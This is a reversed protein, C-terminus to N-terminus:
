SLEEMDSTELSKLLFPHSLIEEASPRKDPNLRCLSELLSLAEPDEITRTITQWYKNSQKLRHQHQRFVETLRGDEWDDFQENGFVRVVMDILQEKSKAAFFLVHGTLLEYLVCGLSWIDAKENYGRPSRFLQEPSQYLLTCVPKMFAGQIGDPKKASLGLDALAVKGENSVLVNASKLDRHLVGKSHMHALGIVLQRFVSRVQGIGLKVRHKLLGLLDHEYYDFVLIFNHRGNDTKSYVIDRLDVVNTSACRRLNAIERYHTISLQHCYGKM